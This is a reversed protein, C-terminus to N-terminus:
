IMVKKLEEITLRKEQQLKRIKKVRDIMNPKYLQYGGSTHEAISLLGQQTWYRITPVSEGVEKALAGIKLLKGTFPKDEIRDIQPAITDLYIRLSGEVCHYMFPIYDSLDRELQAKEISALYKSREEKQIIAPPYGAQMLILNMLLRATRGNGDTFPHITVLKLHAQIAIDVINEESNHLWTIFETMYFPVKQPNPMIVHSGAIRVPVHRYSGANLNDINQLVQSHLERVTKESINKRNKQQISVIYDWARAHNIAELHETITKGEITLGKEVIIATEQRTLTNGEIANSSYTLEVKYWAALNKLIDPNIPQFLDLKSKLSQISSLSMM